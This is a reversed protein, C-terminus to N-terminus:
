YNTFLAAMEAVASRQVTDSYFTSWFMFQQLKVSLQSCWMRSCVLDTRSSLVYRLAVIKIM